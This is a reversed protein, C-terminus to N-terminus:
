TVEQPQQHKAKEHSLRLFNMRRLNDLWRVPVGCGDLVSVLCLGGEPLAEHTGRQSVPAWVCRRWGQQALWTDPRPQVRVPSEERLPGRGRGLALVM